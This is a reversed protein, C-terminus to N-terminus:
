KDLHKEIYRVVGMMALPERIISPLMPIIGALLGFVMDKAANFWIYLTKEFVQRMKKFMEHLFVSNQTFVENVAKDYIIVALKFNFVVLAGYFLSISVEGIEFMYLYSGFYYVFIHLLAKVVRFLNTIM